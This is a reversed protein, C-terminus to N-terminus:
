GGKDGHPPPPKTWDTVEADLMGMWDLVARCAEAQAEDCTETRIVIVKFGLERLEAHRVQQEPRLRGTWKKMEIFLTRGGLGYVRLDPEGKRM